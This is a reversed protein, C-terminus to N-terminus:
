SSSPGVRRRVAGMFLRDLIEGDIRVMDNAADYYFGYAVDARKSTARLGEIQSM